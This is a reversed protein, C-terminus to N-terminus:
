DLSHPTTWRRRRDVIQLLSLRSRNRALATASVATDGSASVYREVVTLYQFTIDVHVFMYPYRTAWDAPDASQSLEHWIMGTAADQYKAIFALAERARDYAGTNVLAEIAILGDGGFFWAYQPRRGARSPGYGAVLGCGLVPNCVWAQDLAIQAWALQQNVSDDPTEIQLTNSLLEAYHSRAETEFKAQGGLLDRM